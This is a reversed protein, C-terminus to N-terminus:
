CRRIFFDDVGDNFGDDECSGDDAGEGFIYDVGDNFGDDGSSDDDTDADIDCFRDIFFTTIINHETVPKNTRPSNAKTRCYQTIRKTRDNILPLLGESFIESLVSRVRV